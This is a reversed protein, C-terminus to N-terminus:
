HRSWTRAGGLPGASTPVPSGEDGLAARAATRVRLVEPDAQDGIGRLAAAQGLLLASRERDGEALAVAALLEVARAMVPRDRTKVAAELSRPDRYYEGIDATKEALLGRVGSRSGLRL